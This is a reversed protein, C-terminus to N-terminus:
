CGRLLRSTRGPSRTERSDTQWYISNGALELQGDPSVTVKVGLYDLLRDGTTVYSRRLSRASPSKDFPAFGTPPEVPNALLAIVSRGSTLWDTLDAEPDLPFGDSGHATVKMIATQGNGIVHALTAQQAKLMELRAVESEKGRLRSEAREIQKDLDAITGQIAELSPGPYALQGFAWARKERLADLGTQDGLQARLAVLDSDVGALFGEALAKPDRLAVLLGRWLAADTKAMNLYPGPCKATGEMRQTETLRGPCFYTAAQKGGYNGRHYGRGCHACRIIGQFLGRTGLRRPFHRSSALRDKVRQALDADIIKALPLSYEEGMFTGRMKGSAYYERTLLRHVTSHQWRAAGAKHKRQGDPSLVGSETLSIAIAKVAEGGVYRKFIARILDAESPQIDFQKKEASWRYGFPNRGRGKHGKALAAKQGMEFRRGIAKLEQAAFFATTFVMFVSYESRRDPENLVFRIGDGHQWSDVVYTTARLGSYTKDRCFRTPEWFIISDVQRARLADWAQWFLPRLNKQDPDLETAGSLTERFEDVIQYGERKAWGGILRLQEDHSVKDEGAQRDSSVRAIAIAKKM